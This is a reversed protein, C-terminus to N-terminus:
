LLSQSLIVQISISSLAYFFLKEKSSTNLSICSPRCNCRIPYSYLSLCSHREPFRHSIGLDLFHSSFLDTIHRSDPSLCLCGSPCPGSTGPPQLSTTHKLFIKLLRSQQSFPPYFTIDQSWPLEQPPCKSSFFLIYNIFIYYNLFLIVM